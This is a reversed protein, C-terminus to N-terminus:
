FINLLFYLIIVKLRPGKLRFDLGQFPILVWISCLGIKTTYNLNKLIPWNWKLEDQFSADGVLLNTRINKIDTYKQDLIRRNELPLSVQFIVKLSTKNM